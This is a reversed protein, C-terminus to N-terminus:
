GDGEESNQENAQAYTMAQIIGPSYNELVAALQGPSPRMGMAGKLRKALKRKQEDFYDGTAPDNEGGLRHRLEARAGRWGLRTMLPKPCRTEELKKRIQRMTAVTRPSVGYRLATEGKSLGSNNVVSRWAGDTKDDSSINLKNKKNDAYSQEVAWSVRKEGDLDSRLVKVPIKNQWGSQRYACLRHHGDILFWENGFATITVPDLPAGDRPAHALEDIHAESCGPAYAISDHRPQFLSPEEAIEAISLRTPNDTRSGQKSLQTLRETTFTIASRNPIEVSSM